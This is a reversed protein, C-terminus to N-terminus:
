PLAAEEDLLIHVMESTVVQSGRRKIVPFGFANTETMDGANSGSSLVGIERRLSHEVMAKLPTHRRAPVAKAEIILDDPLDLTTRM